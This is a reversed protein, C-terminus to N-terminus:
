PQAPYKDHGAMTVDGDQIVPASGVPHLELFVPDAAGRGKARPYSKLEYPLGLEELLWIVRESQSVLLHHLTTV